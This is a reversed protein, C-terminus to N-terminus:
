RQDQRIERPYHRLPMVQPIPFRLVLTGSLTPSDLIFFLHRSSLFHYSQIQPSSLRPTQYQLMTANHSTVTNNSQRWWPQTEQSDPGTNAIVGIGPSIDCMAPSAHQPSFHWLLLSTKLSEGNPPCAAAPQRVRCVSVPEYAFLCM